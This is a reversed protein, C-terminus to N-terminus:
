RPLGCKKDRKRISWARRWQGPAEPSGVALVPRDARSVGVYTVARDARKRRIVSRPRFATIEPREQVEVTNPRQAVQMKLDEASPRSFLVREVAGIGPYLREISQSLALIVFEAGTTRLILPIDVAALRQIHSQIDYLQHRKKQLHYGTTPKRTAPRGERDHIKDM